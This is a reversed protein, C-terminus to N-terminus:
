LETITFSALQAIATARRVDDDSNALIVGLWRQQLPLYTTALLLVQTGGATLRRCALEFAGAVDRLEAESPKILNDSVLFAHHPGSADHDLVASPLLQDQDDLAGGKVFWRASM